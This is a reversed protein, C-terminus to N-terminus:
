AVENIEIVEYGADTVATKITEDSIQNNSEIVANKDDLSVTVNANEDLKKLVKEVTAQCHGCMMGEIKVLKKMQKEEMKNSIEINKGWTSSM